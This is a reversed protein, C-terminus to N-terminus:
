SDSGGIPLLWIPQCDWRQGTGFQIRALRLGDRDTINGITM